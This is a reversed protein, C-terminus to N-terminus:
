VKFFLVEKQLKESSFALDKATSAVSEIAAMNEESMQAISEVSKALDISASGQERLAGSISVVAEKVSAAAAQISEMSDKANGATSVVNTVNKKSAQMSAVANAAGAQVAAIMSSIEHVSHTTREALKRVEDAVVAFGRGAEGARAAEIAANLALLNTQDAVERIVTTVTGIQQVREALEHISLASEDVSIEVSKVEVSASQVDKCSSAAAEGAGIALRHADNANNSVHDISVTLEEVAAAASSTSQAQHASSAAVQQAAESLQSAGSAVSRAEIAIRGIIEKLKGQMLKCAALASSNDGDRVPIGVDLHGESIARTVTAVLSPEGGLVSLLWRNLAQMLFFIAAVGVIGVVYMLWTDTQSSHLLSKLAREAFTNGVVVTDAVAKKHAEYHERVQKLSGAAKAENGDDLAPLFHGDIEQWFLDGQRRQEGLLSSKVQEDFDLSTWFQNRDNYDKHLNALKKLLAPREEADSSALDYATLQAEILFLPPPLIDAVVDKGVGMQNASYSVQRLGVAGVGVVILLIVLVLTSILRLAIKVSLTSM